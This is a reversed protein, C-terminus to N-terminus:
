HAAEVSGNLYTGMLMTFVYAQLFIVLLEFFTMVIAMLASVPGFVVSFNDVSLLYTAGLAFTVLLMHGAFMNAFLRIALTFPRVIFNQLLELPTILIYMPKPVGPLFMIDRFYPWLGQNKIGVAIYLVWCILALVLPFAFKSMPSIQALPIIAMLNNALIFFFLSALFPAFPLGKPGVVDRAIGDRVFSYGTEGIFQLKGPVIEPKRVAAVLLAIMAATAVWAILTIRTIEFDVGLLSFSTLAEPYFEGIGPPTFGGGPDSEVALVDGLAHASSTM